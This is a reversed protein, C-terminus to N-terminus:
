SLRRENKRLYSGHLVVGGWPSFGVVLRHGLVFHLLVPTRDESDTDM